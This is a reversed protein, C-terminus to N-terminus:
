LCSGLKNFNNAVSTKHLSTCFSSGIYRFINIYNCFVICLLTVTHMIITLGNLFKLQNIETLFLVTNYFRDM